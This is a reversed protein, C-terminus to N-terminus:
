EQVRTRLEKAGQKRTNNTAATNYYLLGGLACCPLRAVAGVMSVDLWGACIPVSSMLLSTGVM